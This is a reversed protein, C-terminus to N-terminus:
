YWPQASGGFHSIADRELIRAQPFGVSLAAQRDISDCFTLVSRSVACMSM